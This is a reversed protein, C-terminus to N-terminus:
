KAGLEECWLQGLVAFYEEVKAPDPEVAPVSELMSLIPAFWVQFLVEPELGLETRTFRGFGELLERIDAALPSVTAELTNPVRATAARVREAMELADPLRLDPEGDKGASQWADRAGAKYGDLFDMAAVDAARELFWAVLEAFAQAMRLKGLRLSLALCMALTVVMSAHLRDTYEADPMAYHKWPCTDKLRRAEDTDQRAVALLTLRFREDPTLKSYQGTLGKGKM